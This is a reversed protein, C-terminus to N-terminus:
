LDGYDTVETRVCKSHNSLDPLVGKHRAGYITGAVVAVPHMRALCVKIPAVLVSVEEQRGYNRHQVAKESTDIQHLTM